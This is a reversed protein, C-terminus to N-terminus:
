NRRIRAESFGDAIQASSSPSFGYFPSTEDCGSGFPISILREWMFEAHYFVRPALAVVLAPLEGLKFCLALVYGGARIAGILVLNNATKGTVVASFVIDAFCASHNTIVDHGFIVNEAFSCNGIGHAHARIRKIRVIHLAVDFGISKYLVFPINTNM